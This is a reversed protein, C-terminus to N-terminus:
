SGQQNNEEAQEATSKVGLFYKETGQAIAQAIKWLFDKSRLLAEDAPNTIFAPSVIVVPMRTDRLLTLSSGIANMNKGEHIRRIEDLILNAVRFGYPSRYNGREYYLCSSGSLNPDPSEGLHISIMLMVKQENARSAREPNTLHEGKRRSFMIIAGKEHLLEGVTEAIREVVDSEKLGSRGIAGSDPPYGHGPDLMIRRGEIGGAPLGKEAERIAAFPTDKIIRSIRLLADFTKQGVIADPYLGFNRQFQEVAIATNMDFIGDEKGSYFGLNNLRRKLEAVDDGRLPPERLFLLRSGFRRSAEVLARWTEQGVIGDSLLGRDDQFRRVANETEEGFSSSKVEPSNGDLYGAGVLRSQIDRVERGSDGRKFLRMTKRKIRTTPFIGGIELFLPDAPDM